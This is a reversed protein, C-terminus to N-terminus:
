PTETLGSSNQPQSAARFVFDSSNNDSDYGNGKLEDSGGNGMSVATSASLAKKEISQNSDPGNTIITGEFFQSTGNGWGVQDVIEDNPSFLAISNNESINNGNSVDAGIDVEFTGADNSWLFFGHAPISEGAGILVLSTETGNSTRKRINWDDLDVAQDTPNYIEVFDQNANAGNIQVESIVLHNALQPSPSPSVSPSPSPSTTPTPSAFTQAATFTNNSSTATDSFYAFSSRILLVSLLSAIIVQLPIVNSKPTPIEILRQQRKIERFIGIAELIIVLAAPFIVLIPFGINSKTFALLKGLAPIVVVSKGIIDKEAILNKDADENADGKTTYFIGNGNVEINAVRHTTFAKTDKQSKFAIIDGKKYRPIVAQPTEFASQTKVVILDGVRIVPQMSGSRVILSQNGFVPLAAYAIAITILAFFIALFYNTTKILTKM